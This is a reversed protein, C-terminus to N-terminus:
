SCSDSSESAEDECQLVHVRLSSGEIAHVLTDFDNRIAATAGANRTLPQVSRVCLDFILAAMSTTILSCVSRADADSKSPESGYM